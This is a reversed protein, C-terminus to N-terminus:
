PYTTLGERLFLVFLVFGFFYWKMKFSCQYSLGWLEEVFKALLQAVKTSSVAEEQTMRFEKPDSPEVEQIYQIRSYVSGRCHYRCLFSPLCYFYPLQDDSLSGPTCLTGSERIM